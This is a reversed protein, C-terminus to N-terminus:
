EAASTPVVTATDPPYRSVWTPYNVFTLRNALELADAANTGDNVKLYAYTTDDVQWTIDQTPSSSLFTWAPQGNVDIARLTGILAMQILPDQTSVSVDYNDNGISLTAVTTTAQGLTQPGAILEYGKPLPGADILPPQAVGPDEVAYFADANLQNLLTLPDAGSALFYPGTGWLVYVLDGAISTRDLVTAPEGMVIAETAPHGVAPSTGFPTAQATITVADILVGDARHGLLMETRPTTVGEEIRQVHATVTQDAPPDDLVPFSTPEGAPSPRTKIPGSNDPATPSTTAPPSSVQTPQTAPTPPDGDRSSLIVLGGILATVSATAALGVLVRSRPSSSEFADGSDLRPPSGVAHDNALENFLRPLEEQITM